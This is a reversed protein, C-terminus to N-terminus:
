PWDEAAIPRRGAFGDAIEHWWDINREGAQWCLYVHRGDREAVWDVLGRRPDKLEVGLQAIHDVLTQAQEELKAIETRLARDDSIAPHGDTQGSRRISDCLANLQDLRQVRRQLVIVVPAVDPLSRRAQALTFTRAPMRPTYPAPSTM